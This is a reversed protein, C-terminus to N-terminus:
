RAAGVDKGQEVRGGSLEIFSLVVTALAPDPARSDSRANRLYAHRLLAPLASRLMYHEASGACALLCCLEFCPAASSNLSSHLTDHWTHQNIASGRVSQPLLLNARCRM